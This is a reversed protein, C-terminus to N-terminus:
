LRGLAAARSRETVEARIERHRDLSVVLASKDLPARPEARREFLSGLLASQMEVQFDFIYAQIDGLAQTYKDAATSLIGIETTTPPLWDFTGTVASGKDVPLSRMILPFYESWADQLHEHAMAFVDKFVLFRGDIIQWQEVLSILSIAKTAADTHSAIVSPTRANPVSLHLGGDLSFRATRLAVLTSGVSGIVAAVADEAAGSTETVQKYLDAKIKIGETLRAHAAASEAQLRLQVMVVWAALAAAVVTATAGILASQLGEPLSWWFEPLAHLHLM